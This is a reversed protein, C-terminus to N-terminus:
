SSHRYVVIEKMQKDKMQSATVTTYVIAEQRLTVATAVRYSKTRLDRKMLMNCGTRRQRRMYHLYTGVRTVEWSDNSECM